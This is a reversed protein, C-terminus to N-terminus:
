RFQSRIGERTFLILWWISLPILAVLLIVYLDYGFGTGITLIAYQENSKAPPFVWKPRLLVLLACSVVPVTSLFIAANRAWERLRLLGISTVVGFLAFIIPLIVFFVDGISDLLRKTYPYNHIEDVLLFGSLYLIAGSGLILVAAATSIKGPPKM